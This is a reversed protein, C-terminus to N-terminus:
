GKDIQYVIGELVGCSISLKPPIPLSWLKKWDGEVKWEDRYIIIDVCVRYASKVSYLCFLKVFDYQFDIKAM